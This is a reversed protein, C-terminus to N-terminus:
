DDLPLPTSLTKSRLEHRPKKPILHPLMCDLAPGEPISFPVSCVQAVSRKPVAPTLRRTRVDGNLAITTHTQMQRQIGAVVAWRGMAECLVSFTKTGGELTAMKEAIIRGRRWLAAGQCPDEEGNQPSLPAMGAERKHREEAQLAETWM